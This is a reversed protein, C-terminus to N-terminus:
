EHGNDPATTKLHDEVLKRKRRDSKGNEHDPRYWYSSSIHDHGTNFFYSCIKKSPAFLKHIQYDTGYEHETNETIGDGYEYFSLVWLTNEKGTPFNGNGMYDIIFSDIKVKHRENDFDFNKVAFFDHREKSYWGQGDDGRDIIQDPELHYIELPGREVKEKCSSFFCLVLAM